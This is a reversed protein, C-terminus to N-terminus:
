LLERRHRNRQEFRVSLEREIVIHLPMQRLQRVERVADGDPVQDMVRAANAVPGARMDM